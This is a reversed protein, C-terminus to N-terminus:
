CILAYFRTKEIFGARFDSFRPQYWRVTCGTPLAHLEPSGCFRDFSVGRGCGGRSEPDDFRSATEFNGSDQRDTVRFFGHDSRRGASRLENTRSRGGSVRTRWLSGGGPNRVSVPPKRDSRRGSRHLSLRFQDRRLTERRLVDALYPARFRDATSGSVRASLDGDREGRRIEGTERDPLRFRRLDPYVARGFRLLLQEREMEPVLSRDVFEYRDSFNALFLDALSEANEGYAGLAIKEAAGSSFCLLFVFVLGPVAIRRAASLITFSKM